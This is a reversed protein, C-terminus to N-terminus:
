RESPSTFGHSTNKFVSDALLLAKTAVDPEVPRLVQGLPQYLLGYTALIGGVAPDV